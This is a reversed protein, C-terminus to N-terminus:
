DRATSTRTRCAQRVTTGDCLDVVRQTALLGRTRVDTHLVPSADARRALGFAPLCTPLCCPLSTTQLAHLARVERMDKWEAIEDVPAEDERDHTNTRRDPRHAAAKEKDKVIKARNKDPGKMIYKFLYYIVNSTTVVQVNIHGQFYM